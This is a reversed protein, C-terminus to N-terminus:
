VSPAGCIRKLHSTNSGHSKDLISTWELIKSLLISFKHLVLGIICPKSIKINSVTDLRLSELNVTWYEDHIQLIGNKKTFGFNPPFSLFLDYIKQSCSTPSLTTQKHVLNCQFVISHRSAIVQQLRLVNHFDTVSVSPFVELFLRPM